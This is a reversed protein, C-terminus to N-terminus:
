MTQSMAFRTLISWATNAKAFFRQVICERFASLKIARQRSTPGSVTKLKPIQTQQARRSGAVIEISIMFSGDLAAEQLDILVVEHFELHTMMNGEGEQRGLKTMDLLAYTSLVVEVGRSTTSYTHFIDDGERLFTVLAFLGSAPRWTVDEGAADAKTFTNKSSYFRIGM